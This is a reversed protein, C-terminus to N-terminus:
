TYIRAGKNTNRPFHISPHISPNHSPPQKTHHPSTTLQNVLALKSSLSILQSSPSTFSSFIHSTHDTQCLHYQQQIYAWNGQIRYLMHKSLNTTAKQIIIMNTPRTHYPDLYIIAQRSDHNLQDIPTHQCQAESFLTSEPRCPEHELPHQLIPGSHCKHQFVIGHGGSSQQVRRKSLVDRFNHWIRTDNNWYADKEATVKASLGHEEWWRVDLMLLWKYGYFWIGCINWVQM